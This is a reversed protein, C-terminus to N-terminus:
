ENAVDQKTNNDASTILQELFFEMHGGAQAPLPWDLAKKALAKIALSAPSKPYAVVLAKQKRVALRINEDFPIIAALELAVDLFRDTVKTLKNFLVQGERLNRVMNAVVKFKFVNQDRSLVKMLAYADTISTPEDCVVLLVDQSARAFSVVTDGIGAATDIILVDFDGQLESFARILSAHESETLDVMSRSGSTAPVIKIGNPGEVLIDRLEATGNLVHSLNKEVRLGLMVDVNALGLDADLVLVRKGQQSMAIAMNLSVNTKGVGGKGGTVAIVKIKSQKMRRLGSAQDM